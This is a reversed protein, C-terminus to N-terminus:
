SYMKIKLQMIFIQQHIYNYFSGVIRYFLNEIFKLQIFKFLIYESLYIYHM